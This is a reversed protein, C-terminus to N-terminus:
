QCIGEHTQAWSLLKKMAERESHDNNKLFFYMKVELIFVNAEAKCTFPIYKM